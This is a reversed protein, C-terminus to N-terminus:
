YKRRQNSRLQIQTTKNLCNHPRCTNRPM